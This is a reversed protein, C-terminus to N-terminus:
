RETKKCQVTTLNLNFTESGLANDFCDMEKQGKEGNYHLHLPGQHEALQQCPGNSTSQWAPRKAESATFIDNSRSQLNTHNKKGGQNINVVTPQFDEVPTLLSATDAMRTKQKIKIVAFQNAKM